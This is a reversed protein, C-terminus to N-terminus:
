IAHNMYDTSYKLFGAVWETAMPYLNNCYIDAFTSNNAKLAINFNDNPQIRKFKNVKYVAPIIGSENYGTPNGDINEIYYYGSDKDCEWWESNNGLGCGIWNNGVDDIVWSDNAFWGGDDYRLGTGEGKNPFMRKLESDPQVDGKKTILKGGYYTTMYYTRWAVNNMFDQITDSNMSPHPLSDTKILGDTSPLCIKGPTIKHFHISSYTELDDGAAHLDANAHSPSAMDEILHCLRGMQFYKNNKDLFNNWVDKSYECANKGTFDPLHYWTQGTKPNYGHSKWSLKPVIDPNKGWIVTNWDAKYSHDEKVSGEDIFTCEKNNNIDFNIYQDLILYKDDNNILFDVAEKTLGPHTVDKDWAFTTFNAFLISLAFAIQLKIKM